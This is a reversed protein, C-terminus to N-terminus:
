PSKRMETASARRCFGQFVGILQGALSKAEEDELVELEAVTAFFTSADQGIFVETLQVYGRALLAAAPQEGALEQFRIFAERAGHYDLAQLRYAGVLWWANGLPGNPRHLEVALKLNEEAAKAGARIDEEAIVIGPEDWGSWCFAALDYNMAKEEGKLGQQHALTIGQELLRRAACLDKDDWYRRKAEQHIAKPDMRAM